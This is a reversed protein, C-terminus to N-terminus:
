SEQDPAFIVPWHAVEAGGLHVRLHDVQRVVPCVHAPVLTVTDRDQDVMTAVRDAPDWPQASGALLADADTGAGCRHATITVAVDEVRCVGLKAMGADYLAHAGSCVETVGDVSWAGAATPTGGIAVVACPLGDARLQQAVGVLLEARHRGATDRDATERANTLAVYSTVGELRLGATDVIRQALEPVAAPHAGVRGNDVAIRAGLTVGARVAATGLGVASDADAVHVSVNGRTALDAFRPWRWADQWPHVIVVDTIGADMYRRAERASYAAVGVAGAAIQMVAIETTRHGKIHPRVVVGARRAARLWRTINAAVRGIDVNVVPGGPGTV